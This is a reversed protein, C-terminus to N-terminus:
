HAPLEFGEELTVNQLDEIRVSWGSAFPQGEVGDARV